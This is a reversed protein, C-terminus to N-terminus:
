QCYASHRRKAMDVHFHNRHAANADPGLVTGFIKCAGDHVERLFQGREDTAPWHELVNIHEGKATVFESIDVAEAFAHYSIRETPSNYRNRCQYASLNGVRIVNAQLLKKARPQVVERLWRDLADALPCTMTAGPRVEVRPIDNVYTLRIPAPAGCAGEKIPELAKLEYGGDKLLRACVSKAGAIEADTWKAPPPVPGLPEDAHKVGRQSLPPARLPMPPLGDRGEDVDADDMTENQQTPPHDDRDEDDDDNNRQATNRRAQPKDDDDDDDNDDGSQRVADKRVQPKDDDDDEQKSSKGATQRKRDDDDDDDDDQDVDPKAAKEVRQKKQQAHADQLVGVPEALAFAAIVVMMAFPLKVSM